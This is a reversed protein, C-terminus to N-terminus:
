INPNLIFIEIDLHSYDYDNIEVKQKYFRSSNKIYDSMNDSLGISVRCRNNDISEVRNGFSIIDEEYLKEIKDWFEEQNKIDIEKFNGNEYEYETIRLSINISFGHTRKRTEWIYYIGPINTWDISNDAYVIDYDDVLEQFMDKVLHEFEEYFDNEDTYNEFLKLHKM